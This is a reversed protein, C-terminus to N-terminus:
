VGKGSICRNFEASYINARIESCRIGKESGQEAVCGNITSALTADQSCKNRVYPRYAFSYLAVLLILILLIIKIVM